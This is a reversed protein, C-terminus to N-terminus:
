LEVMKLLAYKRLYTARSCVIEYGLELGKAPIIVKVNDQKEFATKAKELNSLATEREHLERPRTTKASVADLPQATKHKFKPM